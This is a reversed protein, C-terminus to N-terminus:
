RIIGAKLMIKKLAQEEESNVPLLPKRPPGVPHGLLKLGAKVYQVYRGSSELLNFLPLLQYYLKTAADMNKKEVAANYLDNAQKPCIDAAAAVWGKAGMAFSELALNDSGCFVTLKNTLQLIEHIRQIAGSSEKVYKINEFNEALRALLPPKIDVKSTWPNNYVIIPVDVKSIDAYYGFLEDDTPKIYYPPVVLAASAGADKAHKTLSIAEETTLAHTGAVVPMKGNVEDIATEVMKRREENRLSAFEGTSGCPAICTVGVDLYFNIMDRTAEQDLVDDRTFPTPIPLVVGSLQKSM